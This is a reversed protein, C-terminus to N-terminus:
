HYEELQQKEGSTSLIIRNHSLTTMNKCMHEEQVAGAVEGGSSSFWLSDLM